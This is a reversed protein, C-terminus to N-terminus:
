TQLGKQLEDVLLGNNDRESNLRALGVIIEKPFRTNIPDNLRVDM